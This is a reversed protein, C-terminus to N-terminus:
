SFGFRSSSPGPRPRISRNLTAVLDCALTAHADVPYPSARRCSVQRPSSFGPAKRAPIFEVRVISVAGADFMAETSSCFLLVPKRAVDADVRLHPKAPFSSAVCLEHQLGVDM